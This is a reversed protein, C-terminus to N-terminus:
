KKKPSARNKKDSVIRGDFISVIRNAYAAVEWDHTIVVVTHGKKNLTKFLTMIELSAKSDLNGTPEDALIIQPNMVLARAVAVRQMEGGSLQNPVKQANAELHVLALMERVRENRVLSPIIDSYMMPREVNKIVTTRPLLNFAQFVFGIDRNRIEALQDDTLHSINEGQLLYEGSTPTDLGGMIHMITSKGSGSPGMIAVFEQPTIALTIGRLVEHSTDGIQYSKSINRLSMLPSKAKKMNSAWLSLVATRISLSQIALM